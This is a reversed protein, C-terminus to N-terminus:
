GSEAGAAPRFTPPSSAWRHEAPLRSCAIGLVALASLGACLMFHGSFGLAVVSFGSLATGIVPGVACLSQQLTFDTAATERRSGEMMATYLATTALGGALATVFVAAAVVGLSPPGGAAPVLYSLVALSQVGGFLTLSTRRGLRHIAAGAIMSGTLAGAAYLLGATRGIDGLSLGLDVLMQNFSFTAMTEGSRFLLLIAVWTWAGPRAFFRGLTRLGPRDVASAPGQPERWRLAPLLPMALLIAMVWLSGEWGFRAFLILMVGGGLVQGLYYGGVQLANGFGRERDALSRVALGDTAIDQTASALMFLASAAVILGLHSGLDLQSIALVLAVGLAQLPVIWALYHRRRGGFRDVLPAWAFKILWPLAIASFLGVSELSRGSDRLIVPMATIFFGLPIAQSVYLSAILSFKLGRRSAPQDDPARHTPSTAPM